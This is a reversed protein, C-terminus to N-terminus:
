LVERGFSVRKGENCRPRLKGLVEGDGRGEKTDHGGRLLDLAQLQISAKGQKDRGGKKKVKKVWGM